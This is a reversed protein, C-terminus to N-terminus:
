NCKTTAVGVFKNPICSVLEKVSNTMNKVKAISEIVDKFMLHLHYTQFFQNYVAIATDLAERANEAEVLLAQDRRSLMSLLQDLNTIESAADESLPQGAVHFLVGTYKEYSCMAKGIVCHPRPDDDECKNPDLGKLFEEFKESREFSSVKQIAKGFVKEDLFEHYMETQEDFFIESIEKLIKKFPLSEFLVGLGTLPAILSKGARSFSEKAHQLTTNEPTEYDEREVEEPPELDVEVYCKNESEKKVEAEEEKGYVDLNQCVCNVPIRVPEAYAKEALFLPSVFILITFFIFRTKIM